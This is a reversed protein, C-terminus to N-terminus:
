RASQIATHDLLITKDVYLPEGAGPSGSGSVLRMPESNDTPADLALRLQFVSAKAPAPLDVAEFRDVMSQVLQADTERLQSKLFAVYRQAPEPSGPCLALAQRFAFDAARAMREKESAGAANAARWMYIGAISSRFKSFMRSAYDNHVFAPDGSFGSLDHRLFVKEGFSAVAAPSTDDKLWPGIMQDVRPQWFGRDRGVMADSIEPLPQRNIKMILGHPELHPYMWDLPFSEEIFFDRGPNKDFIVKALLGNIQMVAAQGSVHFAAGDQVVAEGPKLQHNKLREMAGACYDQFCRQSDGATPIYLAKPDAPRPNKQIGALIAKVRENRTQLLIDEFHFANDCQLKAKRELDSVKSARRESDGDKQAEAIEHQTDSLASKLAELEPISNTRSRQLEADARCAEAMQGLVDKETGYTSQLYDLYSGDALANQTLTYFPDADVQSKCFATPLGRGPDTGGFYISGAPISRIIDDVAMQTYAPECRVVHDYALCIELVPSWYSTRLGPEGYGNPHSYQPHRQKFSRLLADLFLAVFPASQLCTSINQPLMNM